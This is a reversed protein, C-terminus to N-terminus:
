YTKTHWYLCGQDFCWIYAIHTKKLEM